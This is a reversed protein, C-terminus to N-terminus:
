KEEVEVKSSQIEYMITQKRKNNITNNNLDNQGTSFIKKSNLLLLMDQVRLTGRSIPINVTYTSDRICM